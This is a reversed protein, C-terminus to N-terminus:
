ITNGSMDLWSLEAHADNKGNMLDFRSMAIPPGLWPVKLGSLLESKM